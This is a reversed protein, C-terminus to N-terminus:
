PHTWHYTEELSNTSSLAQSLIGTVWKNIDDIITQIEIGEPLQLAAKTLADQVNRPRSIAVVM